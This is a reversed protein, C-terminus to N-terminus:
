LNPAGKGQSDYTRVLAMRRVYSPHDYFLAEVWHPPQAESLNQDTLRTLASAFAEPNRTLSLAFLDAEGELHRSFANLIPALILFSIGVALSLLPLAAVDSAGQFGFPAATARLALHALGFVALAM